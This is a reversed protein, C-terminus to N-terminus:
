LKQGFFSTLQEEADKLAPSINASEKHKPPANEKTLTDIGRFVAGKHL